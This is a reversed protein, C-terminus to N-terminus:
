FNIGHNRMFEKLEKIQTEFTRIEREVSSKYQLGPLKAQHEFLRKQIKFYSKLVSKPGDKAIQRALQM